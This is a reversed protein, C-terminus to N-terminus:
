QQEYQQVEDHQFELAVGAQRFMEESEGGRM